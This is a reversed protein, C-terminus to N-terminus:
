FIRKGTNGVQRTINDSCASCNILRVYFHSMPLAILGIFTKSNTGFLIMMVLFSIHFQVDM